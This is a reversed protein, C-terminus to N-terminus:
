MRLYYGRDLGFKEAIHEAVAQSCHFGADMMENARAETLVNAM